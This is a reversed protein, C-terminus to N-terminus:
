LDFLAGAADLLQIKGLGLRRRLRRPDDFCPSRLQKRRELALQLGAFLVRNRCNKRPKIFFYDARPRITQGPEVTLNRDDLRVWRSSGIRFDTSITGTMAASDM